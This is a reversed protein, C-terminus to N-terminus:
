YMGGDGLQPAELQRSREPRTPKWKEARAHAEARQTEDLLDELVALKEGAGEFGSKQALALWMAAEVDDNEVGRGTHLMIALAVQGKPDGRNAAKRYWEAAAEDDRPVGRGSSYLNALLTQAAPLDAKAAKKLWRVAKEDDAEVGEGRLYLVALRYMAPAVGEKAARRYYRGAKEPDGAELAENGKEWSARASPAFAFAVIAYAALWGVGRRPGFSFGHFPRAM